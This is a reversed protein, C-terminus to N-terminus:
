EETKGSNTFELSPKGYIWLYKLGKSNMKKLLASEHATPFSAADRFAPKLSQSRARRAATLSCTSIQERNKM